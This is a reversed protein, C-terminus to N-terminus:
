VEIPLSTMLRGDRYARDLEAVADSRREDQHIEASLEASGPVGLRAYLPLLHSFFVRYQLGALGTVLLEVGAAYRYAGAEALRTRALAALRSHSISDIPPVALSAAEFEGHALLNLRLLAAARAQQAPRMATDLVLLANAFVQCRRIEVLEEVTWGFMRSSEAFAHSEPLEQAFMWFYLNEKDPYYFPLTASLEALSPLTTLGFDERLERRLAALAADLPLEYDATPGVGSSPGHPPLDRQNIYGSVHSVRGLERTSSTPTNVQLLPEPGSESNRWTVGIIAPLWDSLNRGPTLVSRRFRVSRCVFTGDSARPAGVLVVEHEERSNAVVDRFASEFAHDVRSLLEVCLYEEANGGVRPLTLQVTRRGDPFEYLVGAFPLMYRYSYLTWRGPKGTRLLLSTLERKTQGALRVREKLAHAGSPSEGTLDDNVYLLVEEALFVFDIHEWFAASAGRTSQRITLARELCHPLRATALGVITVRQAAVLDSILKTEDMGFSTAVVPTLVEQRPGSPQSGQDFPEDPRSLRRLVAVLDSVLRRVATRFADGGATAGSLDIAQRSALEALRRKADVESDLLNDAPTLIVPFVLSEDPELRHERRRGQELACFADFERGCWESTLYSPTQFVILTASGRLARHIREQWHASVPVDVVDFFLRVPRGTIARFEDEIQGISAGVLGSVREDFRTYSIFADYEWTPLSLDTM